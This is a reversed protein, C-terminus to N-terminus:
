LFSEVEARVESEAPDHTFVAVGEESAGSALIELTFVATETTEGSKLEVRVRVQQAPEDGTNTVTVPLYFQDSGARTESSQLETQFAPPLGGRTLTFYGVAAVVAAILLSSILLTIWEAPSHGQRQRSAAEDNDGADNSM